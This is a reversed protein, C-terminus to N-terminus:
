VDSFFVSPPKISLPQKKLSDIVHYRLKPHYINTYNDIYVNAWMNGEQHKDVFMLTAKADEPPVEIDGTKPVKIGDGSLESAKQDDEEDINVNSDDKHVKKSTTLAVDAEDNLAIGSGIPADNANPNVGSIGDNPAIPASPKAQGKNGAMGGGKVPRQKERQKREEEAEQARIKNFEQSFGTPTKFFGKQADLEAQDARFSYIPDTLKSFLYKDTIPGDAPVHTLRRFSVDYSKARNSNLIMNAVPNNKIKETWNTTLYDAM